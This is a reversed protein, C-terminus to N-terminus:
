LAAEMDIPLGKDIPGKGDKQGTSIMETEAVPQIKKGYKAVVERLQEPDIPKSIYDDMGAKVCRERDQKMAHATLAIIPIAGIEPNSRQINRTAAIGDMVPMQVDMLVLDFPENGRASAEVAALASDTESAEKYLVGWESLMEGVIQRNTANDDVVLIRKGQINLREADISEKVADPQVSM